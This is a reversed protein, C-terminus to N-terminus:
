KPEPKEPARSATVSEAPTINIGTHSRAYSASAPADMVTAEALARVSSAFPRIEWRHKEWRGLVLDRRLSDRLSDVFSDVATEFDDWADELNLGLSGKEDRQWHLQPQGHTIVVDVGPTDDKLLSTRWDKFLLKAADKDNRGDPYHESLFRVWAATESESDM